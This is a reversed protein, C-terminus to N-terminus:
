FIEKVKTLTSKGCSLVSPIRSGREALKHVHMKAVASSHIGGPHSSNKENKHVSGRKNM